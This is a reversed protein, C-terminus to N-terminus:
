WRSRSHRESVARYREASGSKTMAAAVPQEGREPQRQARPVNATACASLLRPPMELWLHDVNLCRKGGIAGGNGLQDGGSLLTFGRPVHRTSRHLHRAIHRKSRRTEQRCLSQATAVIPVNHIVLQPDGVRGEPLTHVKSLVVISPKQGEPQTVLDVERELRNAGPLVILV